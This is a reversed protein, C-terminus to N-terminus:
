QLGSDHSEEHSDFCDSSDYADGDAEVLECISVQGVALRWILILILMLCCMDGSRQMFNNMFLMRLNYTYWLSVLVWPIGLSPTLATPPPICSASWVNPLIHM